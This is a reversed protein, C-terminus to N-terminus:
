LYAVMLEVTGQYQGALDNVSWVRNVHVTLTGFVLGAPAPLHYLGHAPDPHAGSKGSAMTVSCQTPGVTVPPNGAPVHTLPISLACTVDVACNSRVSFLMTGVNDIPYGTFWSSDVTSLDITNGDGGPNVAIESYPVVQLSVVSSASKASAPILNGCFAILVAVTLPIPFWRRPQNTM